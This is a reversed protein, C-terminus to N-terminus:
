GSRWRAACSPGLKRATGVSAAGYEMASCIAKPLARAKTTEERFEDLQKRNPLSGRLLMYAVEEFQAKEALSEITYGRYTLGVGNKGVTSLSTEGASQGRLGAGGLPKLEPM